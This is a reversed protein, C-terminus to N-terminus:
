AEDSDYLEMVRNFKQAMSSSRFKEPPNAPEVVEISTQISRKPSSQSPTRSNSQLQSASKVGRSEVSTSHDAVSSTAMSASYGATGPKTKKKELFGRLFGRKKERPKSSLKNGVTCALSRSLSRSEPVAEDYRASSLNLRGSQGKQYSGKPESLKTNISNQKRSIPNCDDEVDPFFSSPPM